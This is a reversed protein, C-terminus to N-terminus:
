LSTPKIKNGHFIENKRYQAKPKSSYVTKVILGRSIRFAIAKLIEKIEVTHSNYLLRNFIYTNAPVCLAVCRDRKMMYNAFTNTSATGEYDPATKILFIIFRNGTCTIVFEFFMIELSTILIMEFKKSQTIINM